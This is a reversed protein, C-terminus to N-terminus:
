SNWPIVKLQPWVSTWREIKELYIGETIKLKNPHLIMGWLDNLGYPAFVTIKGNEDYQVGIGTATTPWENIAAEVSRYPEIERGFEKGYWLHVRAQNVIEVPNSINRFLKEGQQVYVNEAEKSLDSADYYVLDCDKIGNTLEFGHLYNWVTQAICGAGLYWNPLKLEPTRKLLEKVLKSQLLVKELLETQVQLNKNYALEM